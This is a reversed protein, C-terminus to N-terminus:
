SEILSQLQNFKHITDYNWGTKQGKKEEEKKENIVYRILEIKNHHEQTCTEDECEIGCLICYNFDPTYHQELKM